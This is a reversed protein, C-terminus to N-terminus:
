RQSPLKDTPRDAPRSGPQQETPQDGPKLSAQANNQLDRAQDAHRQLVPKVTKLMNQLDPDTASSIATDIRALEKDHDAVMMTLFEKDFEAGKLTKLRAMKQMMDKHAQKDAESEPKDAPIAALKRQKAFAMLDKNSSQHDRELTEGYNKVTSTGSKQALKGLDVEMKNVHHLHAIIKVDGDSLKAGAKNTNTNTNTNTTKENTKDTQTKGTQDTTKGPPQADQARDTPAAKDPQAPAAPPAPQALALAPFALVTAIALSRIKM